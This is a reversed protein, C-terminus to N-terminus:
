ICRRLSSISFQEVAVHSALRLFSSAPPKPASILCESLAQTQSVDSKPLGLRSIVHDALTKGTRLEVSAHGTRQYRVCTDCHDKGFGNWRSYPFQSSLFFCTLHTRPMWDIRNVQQIWFIRESATHLNTHGTSKNIPQSTPLSTAPSGFM